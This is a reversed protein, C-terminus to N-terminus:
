KKENEDFIKKIAPRDLLDAEYFKFDKFSNKLVKLM